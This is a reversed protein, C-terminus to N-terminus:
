DEAAIGIKPKFVVGAIEVGGASGGMRTAVNELTLRLQPIGHSLMKADFIERDASLKFQALVKAVLRSEFAARTHAHFPIKLWQDAVAALMVVVSVSM